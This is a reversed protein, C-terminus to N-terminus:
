NYVNNERAMRAIRQQASQANILIKIRVFRFRPLTLFNM